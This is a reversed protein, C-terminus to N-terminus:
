KNRDESDKTQHSALLKDNSASLADNSASLADKSALLKDTLLADEVKTGYYKQSYKNLISYFPDFNGEVWEELQDSALTDKSALYGLEKRLTSIMFRNNAEEWVNLWVKVDKVDKGDKGLFERNKKMVFDMASSMAKPDNKQRAYAIIKTMLRCHNNYKKRNALFAKSVNDYRESLLISEELVSSIFKYAATNTKKNKELYSKTGKITDIYRKRGQSLSKRALIKNIHDPLVYAKKKQKKFYKKIKKQRAPFSKQMARIKDYYSILDDAQQEVSGVSVGGTQPAQWVSADESVLTIYEILLKRM